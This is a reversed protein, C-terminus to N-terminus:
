GVEVDGYREVRARLRWCAGDHGVDRGGDLVRGSECDPLGLVDFRVVDGVRVLDHGCVREDDCVWVTSSAGSAVLVGAAVLAAAATVGLGV